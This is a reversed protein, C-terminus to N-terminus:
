KKTWNEYVVLEDATITDEDTAEDDSLESGKSNKFLRLAEMKKEGGEYNYAYTGLLVDQMNDIVEFTGSANQITMTERTIITGKFSFNSSATLPRESVILGVKNIDTIGAERIVEAVDIPSNESGLILLAYTTATENKFVVYSGNFIGKTKNQSIFETNILNEYVDANREKATLNSYNDTLKKCLSMYQNSCEAYKKNLEIQKNVSTDDTGMGVTASHLTTTGDEERTLMNGVINLSNGSLTGIDFKNIYHGLYKDIEQPSSKYYEEFFRSAEATSNFKLYYYAWVTESDPKFYVKEYTAGYNSLPKGVTSDILNLNVEKYANPNKKSEDMFDIYSKDKVNVPNKGVVTKGNTVDYGICEAPVLYALQEIKSAVANGMKVDENNRNVGEIGAVELKSTGIYTNGGLNLEKLQSMDLSANAGNVIISSSNKAKTTTNGFGTYTGAIYVKSDSSNITIDDQIYTDGMLMLNSNVTTTNNGGDLKPLWSLIKRLEEWMEAFSDYWVGLLSRFLEIWFNIGGGTAEEPTKTGDLEIGATWLSVNESTVFIPTYSSEGNKRNGLKIDGNTIFKVKKGNEIDEENSQIFMTVRPGIEVGDKGGYVSGKMFINNKNEPTNNVVFKENAILCYDDINPFEYTEGLGLNPYALLIDTEIISVYGERDTYTVRLNKLRVGDTYVLLQSEGNSDVFAGVEGKNAAPQSLYGTLTTVNYKQADSQLSLKEVIKNKYNTEFVANKNQETSSSYQQLVEQYAESFAVSVDKKLGARIEDMALEASYFSDKAKRDVVKMKYNYFTSYMIMSSMISVFAIAVLVMVIASGKNDKEFTQRLLWIKNSRKRNKNTM